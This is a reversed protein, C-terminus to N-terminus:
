GRTKDNKPIEQLTLHYTELGDNRQGKNNLMKSFPFVKNERGKSIRM